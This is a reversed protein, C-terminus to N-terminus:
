GKLDKEHQAIHCPCACIYDDKISDPCNEHEGSVCYGSM